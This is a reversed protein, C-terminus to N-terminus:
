TPATCGTWTPIVMYRSLWVLPMGDPTVLGAGNHIARLATDRQSEMIGHVGTVCVYHQERRDMWGEIRALAQDM